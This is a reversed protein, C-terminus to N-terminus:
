RTRIIGGRDGFDRSVSPMILFGQSRVGRGEPLPYAFLTHLLDSDLESQSIFVNGFKIPLRSRDSPRESRGHSSSKNPDISAFGSYIVLITVFLSIALSM